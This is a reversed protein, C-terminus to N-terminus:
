VSTQLYRAASVQERRQAEESVHGSARIQVAIGLKCAEAACADCVQINLIDSYARYLAQRQGCRECYM